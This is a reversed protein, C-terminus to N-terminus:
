QGSNLVWSTSGYPRLYTAKKGCGEVGFTAPYGQSVNLLILKLEGEPCGMDYAARKRVVNSYEEYWRESVDFGDVTLHKACGAVLLVLFPVIRSLSM